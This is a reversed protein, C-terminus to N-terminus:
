GRVTAASDRGLTRFGCSADVSLVPHLELGNPAAGRQGHRFDFFGVGSITGQGGLDTFSGNTAPAGCAALLEQRATRMRNRLRPLARLICAPAPFEASMTRRGGPEALVLKIDGNPALSMAVLRARVKFTTTEVGPIRATLRGLTPRERAALAAVTTRQPTLSVTAAEPDQLTKVDLREVGCGAQSSGILSAELPPQDKLFVRVRAQQAGSTAPAFSVAIACTRGASLTRPCGDRVVFDQSDVEIREVTHEESGNALTLRQPPPLELYRTASFELAVPTLRAPISRTQPRLPLVFGLVVAPTALAAMAAAVIRRRRARRAFYRANSARIPEILRDHTLEYWISGARREARVLRERELTDVARNPIGATSREARYATGRTGGPTLLTSGVWERLRSVRLGTESAAEKIAHEYFRGLLVDLDAFARLHEQTIVDVEDPLENWLGHCVVQLQVPEVEEGAVEVTRGSEVEVRLKLLDAVLAEAAGKAFSRSTAELPQTVAVLAGAPDLRRLHFRTRLAGPLLFAYPELRALYEERLTLVIRLGSDADLAARLDRFFGEREEWLEPHATFLEEFQDLVVARPVSEEEEDLARERSRLFDALGARAADAVENAEAWQAVVGAVFVNATEIGRLTPPLAGVRGPPLVDFGKKELLPLVGANLLSSKGAGSESYLVVVRHAVVLSTLDRIERERGFFRSQEGREFPRPGVYPNRERAEAM